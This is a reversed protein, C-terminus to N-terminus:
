RILLMKGSESEEGAQIRYLYLGSSLGNADFPIRHIGASMSEQLVRQIRRGTLDYIELVVEREEPLNFQITTEGRFPNPFNPELEFEGPRHRALSGGSPASGSVLVGEGVGRSYLLRQEAGDILVMLGFTGADEGLSLEFTNLRDDGRTLDMELQTSPLERNELFEGYALGSVLPLPPRNDPYFLYLDVPPEEELANLVTVVTRDDGAEFDNQEIRHSEIGSGDIGLGERRGTLVMRFLRDRPLLVEEEFLVQGPYQPNESVVSLRVEAGAPVKFEETTETFSIGSVVERDNVRIEVPDAAPDDSALTFQVDSAPLSRYANLRRSENVRGNLSSLQDAQNLLLDRIEQYTHEPFISRILAAVGSVFPTAMSSGSLYRYPSQVHTSYIDEGPAAIDVHSGYRSFSALRDVSNTASVAIVNELDYAAPYFPDDPNSDNTVNGAAAIVLHDQQQALRIRAEPGPDPSPGGYSHNSIRAGRSIAYDYGALISASTTIQVDPDNPHESFVKVAMLAVQWNVGTIGTANDGVAGIIGAVHTGHGHVDMPDDGCVGDNSIMTGPSCDVGYRGQNDQFMNEALDPHTYDIGTDFVAVIVESSGKTVEWARSASIDAGALGSFSGRYIQGENRLGWQRPFDPDDPLVEEEEPSDQMLETTSDVPKELRYVYNPQVYSLDPHLNKQLLLQEAQEPDLRLHYLSDPTTMRSEEIGFRLHFARRERSTLNRRFRVLVEGELYEVSQSSGPAQQLTRISPLGQALSFEPAVGWVLLLVALWRGSLIPLRTRVPESEEVQM